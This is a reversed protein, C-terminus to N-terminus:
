VSKFIQEALQDAVVDTSLRKEAARDFINVLTDGITEIHTKLAEAGEGSRQYAVDIIGGANIVYDPSYLIGKQLLQQALEPRSLQNNAAGAIVCVKM